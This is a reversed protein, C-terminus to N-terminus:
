VDPCTVSGRVFGRQMPADIGHDPEDSKWQTPDVACESAGNGKVRFAM